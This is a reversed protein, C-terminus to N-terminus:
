KKMKYFYFLASLVGFLRHRLLILVWGKLNERGVPMPITNNWNIFTFLNNLLQTIQMRDKGMMVAYSLISTIKESCYLTYEKKNIPIGNSLLNNISYLEKQSHQLVDDYFKASTSLTNRLYHIYLVDQLIGLSKVNPYLRINLDFDEGGHKYCPNFYLAGDKFLSANYM